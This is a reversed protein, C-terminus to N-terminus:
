LSLSFATVFLSISFYLFHSLHVSTCASLFIFFSLIPHALSSSSFKLNNSNGQCTYLRLHLRSGYVSRAYSPRRSHARPPEFLLRPATPSRLLPLKVDPFLSLSLILSLSLPHSLSGSRTRKQCFYRVPIRPTTAASATGYVFVSWLVPPTRTRTSGVPPSSFFLSITKPFPPLSYRRFIYLVVLSFVPNPAFLHLTLRCSVHVRICM